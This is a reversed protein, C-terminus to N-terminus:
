PAQLFVSNQSVGGDGVNQSIICHIHLYSQLVTTSTEMNEVSQSPIQYGNWQTVYGGGLSCSLVIQLFINSQKCYLCNLLYGNQQTVHGDGFSCSV